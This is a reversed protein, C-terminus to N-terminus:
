YGGGYWNKSAKIFAQGLKYTFCEKEKLAEHYDPYSELSPLALHPHEKIKTKYAKQEFEHKDKIYSLVFPMRLYGWLSKSNEILAQGLKYSLQSQIRAKASHAQIFTIKPHIVDMKIGLSKALKKSELKKIVLDQELNRLELNQKRVPLSNFENTLDSIKKQLPALKIPDQRENYQEIIIKFDKLYSCLHSFDYEKPLDIDEDIFNVEEINVDKDLLLFGILGAQRENEFTKRNRYQGSYKPRKVNDNINNHIKTNEDIIFDYELDIICQHFYLCMMVQQKKNQFVCFSEHPPTFIFNGCNVALIKMGHYKKPFTLELEEGNELRYVNEKCLTTRMKIFEKSDLIEELDVVEFIPATTNTIRKPEKFFEFNEYIKEALPNSYFAPPHSVGLINTYFALINEKVCFDYADIFNFGYKECQNRYFSSHKEHAAFYHWRIILVKKQLGSLVKFVCNFSSLRYEAIDEHEYMKEDDLSLILLDAEKIFDNTKKRYIQYIHGYPNMSALGFSKVNAGLKVFHQTFASHWTSECSGFLVINM